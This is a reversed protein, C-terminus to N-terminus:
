IYFSWTNFIYFTHLSAFWLKIVMGLYGYARLAHMIVCYLTLKEKMLLCMVKSHPHVM